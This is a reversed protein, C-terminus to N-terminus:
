RRAQWRPRRIRRTSFTARGMWRGTNRSGTGRRMSTPSSRTICIWTAPGRLTSPRPWSFYYRRTWRDTFRGFPIARLNALEGTHMEHLIKGPQEYNFENEEKGQVHALFRLVDHLIRPNWILTELGTFLSDRGFPVAFRPLGASPVWLDPFETMLIRLDEMGRALVRRVVRNGVELRTAENFWPPQLAGTSRPGYMEATGAPVETRCDISITTDTRSNPSLDLDFVLKGDEFRDVPRDSVIRTIRKVNDLGIYEMSLIGRTLSPIM